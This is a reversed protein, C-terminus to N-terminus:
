ASNHSYSEVGSTVIYRKCRGYEDWYRLPQRSTAVYDLVKELKKEGVHTCQVPGCAFWSGRSNQWALVIGSDNVLEENKQPPNGNGRKTQQKNNTYQQRNTKKSTPADQNNLQKLM